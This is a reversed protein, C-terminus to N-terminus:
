GCGGCGTRVGVPNAHDYFLLVKRTRPPSIDGEILIPVTQYNLAYGDLTASSARNVDVDMNVSIGRKMIEEEMEQCKECLVERGNIKHTRYFFIISM